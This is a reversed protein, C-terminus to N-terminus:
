QDAKIHCLWLVGALPSTLFAMWAAKKNQTTTLMQAQAFPIFEPLESVFHYNLAEKAIGSLFCPLVRKCAASNKGLPSGEKM